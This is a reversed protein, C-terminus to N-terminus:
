AAIIIMNSLLSNDEVQSSAAEYMQLVRTSSGLLYLTWKLRLGRPDVLMEEVIEDEKYAPMPLWQM